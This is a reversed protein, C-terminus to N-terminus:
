TVHLPLRCIRPTSFPSRGQGYFPRTFPYAYRREKERGFVWLFRVLSEHITFLVRGHLAANFCVGILVCSSLFVASEHDAMM